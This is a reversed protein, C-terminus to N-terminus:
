AGREVRQRALASDADEVGLMPAVLRILADEGEDRRGDSLAVEWLAEIVGVREEYPVADKLARTFRVTDPAEEELREAEGRLSAADFPGLGFRARLTADIRGLEPGAYHGDSRALRVLLAALALREDPASLRSPSPALLRRLLHEFM